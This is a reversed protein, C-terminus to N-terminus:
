HITENTNHKKQHAEFEEKTLTRIKCWEKTTLIEMVKQPGGDIHLHEKIDPGNPIKASLREVVLNLAEEAQQPSTEDVFAIHTVRKVDESDLVKNDVQYSFRYVGQMKGTTTDTWLSMM